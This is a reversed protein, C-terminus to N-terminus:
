AKAEEYEAFLHASSTVNPGVGPNIVLWRDKEVLYTKTDMHYQRIVVAEEELVEGDDKIEPVYAGALLGRAYAFEIVERASDLGGKFQVAEIQKPKEVLIM